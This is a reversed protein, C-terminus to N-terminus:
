ARADEEVVVANAEKLSYFEKIVVSIATAVPIALILGALGALKAGILLAAISIVPNLGVARQMIKPVLIHNEAQQIVIFLIVVFLAKMPSDVFAVLVAPLAALIPGLYPVFEGIFAVLALILAYEVGLILLSIYVLLGVLLSLIIQAKLWSSIKHQIKQVLQIFFHQYKDPVIARSTRKVANEEVLLYFTIVLIAFFSVIGGFVSFVTGFASGVASQSLSTQLEGISESISTQPGYDASLSTLDRVFNNIREYYAPLNDAFANVQTVIPPVLLTIILSVFGVLVLFFFIVSLNRPIKKNELYDVWPSLAAAFIIAVFLVAIIDRIIYLFILSLLVLFFKIITMLSLDMLQKQSPM